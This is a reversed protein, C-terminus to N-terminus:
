ETRLMKKNDSRGIAPPGNPDMSVKGGAAVVAPAPPCLAPRVFNEPAAIYHPSRDRPPSPRPRSPLLRRPAAPVGPPLRAHLNPRYPGPPFPVARRRNPIRDAVVAGAPFANAYDAMLRSVQCLRRRLGSRSSLSPGVPEVIGSSVSLAVGNREISM